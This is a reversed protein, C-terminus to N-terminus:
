HVIDLSGRETKNQHLYKGALDEVLLVLECHEVQRTFVTIVDPM